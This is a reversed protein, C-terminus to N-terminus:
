QRRLLRAMDEPLEARFSLRAGTVPHRLVLGWAHLAPRPILRRDETGYLWDGALPHGIAAMHLRLQHTRGTKPLLRLLSLGEAAAMTEYVTVAPAGDSRICRRIPSDEARGIPLDVVGDAPEPSGLCIGRYERVFDDTHLLRRLANHAFRSKAVVMLGTTGRDLRNVPHFVLGSGLYHALGGALTPEEPAFSSAHVALPAAKNVVLFFEDEYRIDLDMPIPPIPHEPTDDRLDVTLTDGASVVANTFVPAGNLLIGDERRKLHNLLATSLGLEYHLLSRVTRGAQQSTVTLTM